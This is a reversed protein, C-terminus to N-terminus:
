KLDRHGDRKKIEDIVTKMKSFMDKDLLDTIQIEGDSFGAWGMQFAASCGTCGLKTLLKEYKAVERAAAEQVEGMVEHRLAQVEEQLKKQKEKLEELRNM